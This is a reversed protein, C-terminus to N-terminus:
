ERKLILLAAIIVIFMILGCMILLLGFDTFLLLGIREANTLALVIPKDFYVLLNYHDTPLKHTITKLAFDFCFFLLLSITFSFYTFLKNEKSFDGIDMRKPDLLMIVFLFFVVVAGLYVILFVVMLYEANFFPFFLICSLIFWVLAFASVVLSKCCILIGTSVIMQIILIYLILKVM